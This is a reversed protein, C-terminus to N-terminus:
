AQVIAAENPERTVACTITFTQVTNSTMNSAARSSVYIPWVEVVDGAAPKPKGGTTTGSLGFRGIVIFGETGRPLADWADDNVDDRYMDATFQAQSTGPATQEFLSDLAPTPITNGQSSATIGVTFPTLDDAGNIEAVTPELDAAAITAVLGIWSQENPIIKAM